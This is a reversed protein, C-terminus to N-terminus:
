VASIAATQSGSGAKLRRIAKILAGVGLIKIVRKINYALVHLSMETSVRKLTKTQFHTWGMWGKITGFPHEVTQRRVCMKEPDADLRAQMQDIIAEHEWRRVRREKGTTCQAKIPCGQCASFWYVHLNMGHENTTFRQTLRQGAPCRYEDDEAIYVFDQKGFRGEAKSGSTLPKPVLTTIGAEECARIEEGDFYGRDAVVTLAEVGTAERARQAMNSLQARDSGVNTVEHAVIIHHKADVAMQVKCGVIGSGRSNMSRAEPDTLSVQQDPAALMRVDLEKLKQMQEKLTAIKDQLRTRKKTQGESPEQRDATDLQSLYRDISEEIQQLRRQMKASTFNRDRNNVAKFKSGDIAVVDQSFLDLERCLMVFQRCVGRIAKGNDKRFSAITKFDPMLRGTLWMVELNRSRRWAWSAFVRGTRRLAGCWRERGVYIGHHHYGHRETVLCAGLPAGRELLTPLALVGMAHLCERGSRGHQQEATM